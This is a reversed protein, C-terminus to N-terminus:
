KHVQSNKARKTKNYDHQFLSLRAKEHETHACIKYSCIPCTRRRM